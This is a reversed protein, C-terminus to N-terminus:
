KDKLLDPNEKLVKELDALAKNMGRRMLKSYVIIDEGTTGYAWRWQTEEEKIPYEWVTKNTSRHYLRLKVDISSTFHTAPCGVVWLAPAAISICYSVVQGEFKTSNVEADLILDGKLDDIATAYYASTFLRSTDTSLAAAYALNGIIDEKYAGVTLMASSNEPKNYDVWGYPMLPCLSWFITGTSNGETRRDQFGTVAVNNQYVPKEALVVMDRKGDDQTVSFIGPNRCGALFVVTMAVFSILLWNKM